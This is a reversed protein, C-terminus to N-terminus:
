RRVSSPSCGKLQRFLKSFRNISGCGVQDAIETISLSTHKLLYDAQNIRYRNVFQVLTQGTMRKFMRCFHYSSLHVFAAAQEVTIREMYHEEIHLLLSKYAAAHREYELLESGSRQKVSYYRILWSFILQCYARVSLEYGRQKGQFEEILSRIATIFMPYHSDGRDIQNAILQQGTTYPAILEVAHPDSSRLGLLSPNFVIAFIKFAHEPQKTHVAHLEGSNVFLLDGESAHIHQGGIQYMAEGQEILILEFHEHWHMPLFQNGTFKTEFVNIPFSRDVLKTDEWLNERM